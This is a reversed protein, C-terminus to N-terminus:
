ERMTGGASAQLREFARRSAEDLSQALLGRRLAFDLTALAADTTLEGAAARALAEAVPMLRHEAVEGDIARPVVGAPLALDFVFLREHQRGQPVDCELDLRGGEALGAMQAPELGAEEWGERIVTERPSQGRPVGGGIMNDLRGPDTPKTDSRRAIWLHTPRGAADAVHGNCHVGYTLTGWFRSAAREITAHEGGARDRLAYPEGRWGVILGEAHLERHIAALREDRESPPLRLWLAPAAGDVLEFADPWRALAPLHAVAVSGLVVDRGGHSLLLPARPAGDRRSALAIAPWSPSTM